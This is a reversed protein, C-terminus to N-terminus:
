TCNFDTVFMNHVTVARPDGIFLKFDELTPESIIKALLGNLLHVTSPFFYGM